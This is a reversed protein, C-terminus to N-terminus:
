PINIVKAKTRFLVEVHVLHSLADGMTPWHVADKYKNVLFPKNLGEGFKYKHSVFQGTEVQIFWRARKNAM